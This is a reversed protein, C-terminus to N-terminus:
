PKHSHINSKLQQQQHHRSSLQYCQSCQSKWKNNIAQTDHSDSWMTKVNGRPLACLSANVWLVGTEWVSRVANEPKRKTIHPYKWSTGKQHTSASLSFSAPEFAKWVMHLGSVKSLFVVSKVYSDMLLKFSLYLNHLLLLRAIFCSKLESEIDFSFNPYHAILHDEHKFLVKIM